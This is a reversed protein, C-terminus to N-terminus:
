GEAAPRVRYLRVEGRVGKFRRRGAYSWRYGDRPAERVESTALVTGPRAVTTIRSALNVPRGYWDGGRPLAEGRAVGARLRPFHKGEADVAEILSLTAALLAESEASVLMAADGITKVLRVPPTAVEAALESLRGAVAGLEEPRASEGLSTFGVLDAFCVGIEELGQLHGAALQEHGLVAQRVEERLRIRMVYAVTGELLPALERTVAAYRLAVDRETDGPKLFAEGFVRAVTTAVRALAESTARAVEVAAEFPFGAARAAALRRAAELDVDSFAPEDPEPVPVGLARRYRLLQGVEVGWAEAVERATHRDGGGELGREVPLLALRGERTARKLEELPIGDESLQRLLELRARRAGEDDLGELLGEAEFDIAV